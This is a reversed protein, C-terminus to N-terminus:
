FITFEIEAYKVKTPLEIYFFFFAQTRQYFLTDM